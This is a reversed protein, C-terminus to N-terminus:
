FMLLDPLMGLWVESNDEYSAPKAKLLDKATKTVEILAEVSEIKAEGMNSRSVEDLKLSGQTDLNVLYDSEEALEGMFMQASLLTDTDMWLMPEAEVRQARKNLFNAVAVRSDDDARERSSAYDAYEEIFRNLEKVWHTSPDVAPAAWAEAFDFLRFFAGNTTSSSSGRIGAPYNNPFNSIEPLGSGTANPGFTLVRQIFMTQERVASDYVDWQAKSAGLQADLNLLKQQAAMVKDAIKMPAKDLIDVALIQVIRDRESILRTMEKKIEDAATISSKINALNNDIMAKLQQGIAERERRSVTSGGSGGSSSNPNSRTPLSRISSLISGSSTRSARAGASISVLRRASTAITKRGASLDSKVVTRRANQFFNRTSRAASAMQASNKQANKGRRIDSSTARTLQIFARGQSQGRFRSGGGTGSEDAGGSRTTTTSGGGTRFRSNGPDVTGPTTPTTTPTFASQPSGRILDEATVGVVPFPTTIPPLARLGQVWPPNSMQPIGWMQQIQQPDTIRMQDWMATESPDCNVNWNKGEIPIASAGVTLKQYPTDWYYTAIAPLLTCKVAKGIAEMVLTSTPRTKSQRHQADKICGSLEFLMADETTAMDKDNSRSRRAKRLSHRTKTDRLAVSLQDPDIDYKEHLPNPVAGLTPPKLDKLHTSQIEPLVKEFASCATQADSVPVPVAPVAAPVAPANTASAGPTGAPPPMVVTVNIAQAAGPLPTIKKADFESQICCRMQFSPKFIATLTDAVEASRLKNRSNSAGSWERESSNFSGQLDAAYDSFASDIFAVDKNLDKGNSGLCGLVDSSLNVKKAAAKLASQYSGLSSSLNSQYDSFPDALYNKRVDDYYNEIVSRNERRPDAARLAKFMEQDKKALANVYSKISSSWDPAQSWSAAAMLVSSWILATKTFRLQM